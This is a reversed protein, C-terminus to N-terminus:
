EIKVEAVSEYRKPSIIIPEIFGYSYPCESECKEPIMVTAEVMEYDNTTETTIKGNEDYKLTHIHTQYGKEDYSYEVLSTINGDANCTIEKGPRGLSDYELHFSTVVGDKDYDVSKIIENRDDYEEESHYAIAGNEDYTVTKTINRRDDYKSESYYTIAGNEDYLVTKINNGRDDYENEAHYSITGDIGYEVNKTKNGHDDYENEMQPMKKGDNWCLTRRIENGQKDYEYELWYELKGHKYDEEKIVNGRDDYKYERSDDLSGEYYDEVKILNGQQDYEKCTSLYEKQEDEVKKFIKIKRRIGNRDYEHVIRESCGNEELCEKKINGKGDYVANYKMIWKIDDNDGQINGEQCKVIRGMDNYEYEKISGDVFIDDDYKYFKEQIVNGHDDYEYEGRILIGDKLVSGAKTLVVTEQHTQVPDKKEGCGSLIATFALAIALIVVKGGKSKKLDDKMVICKRLSVKKM